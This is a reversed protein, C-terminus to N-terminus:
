SASINDANNITSALARFMKRWSDEGLIPDVGTQQFILDSGIGEPTITIEVNTVEKFHKHTELTFSLKQPRNVETYTGFHDILEGEDTKETISFAGGKQLDIKVDVIHSNDGKFLWQKITDANVWADFVVDPSVNFYEEIYVPSFKAQEM